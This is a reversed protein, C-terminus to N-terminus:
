VPCCHPSIHIAETINGLCSCPRNWGLRWLGARYLLFMTALWVMLGLSINQRPISLCIGAVILEIIGVLLMLHRFSIGFIPDIVNLVEARGFASFIKALGTTM